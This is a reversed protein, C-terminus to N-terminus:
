LYLKLLSRPGYGPRGTNAPQVREFGLRDTDLQEVIAEIVRCMHDSPVLDDLVVLFLTGQNRGGSQIYAM